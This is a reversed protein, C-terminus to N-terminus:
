VYFIILLILPFDRTWSSPKKDLFMLHHASDQEGHLLQVLSSPWQMTDDAQAEEARYTRWRSWSSWESSVRLVWYKYRFYCRRWLCPQVPQKAIKERTCMHPERQGQLCTLHSSIHATLACPPEPVRLASGAQPPPNTHHGPNLLVPNEWFMMSLTMCM